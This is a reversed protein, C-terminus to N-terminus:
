YEFPESDIWSSGSVTSPPLFLNSIHIRCLVYFKGFANKVVCRIPTVPFPYYYPQGFASIIGTYIVFKTCKLCM